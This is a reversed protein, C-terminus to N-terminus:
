KVIVVKKTILEGTNFRIQLIYMGSTLANLNLMLSTKDSGRLQESTRYVTNGNIDQLYVAVHGNRDPSSINLYAWGKNPNPYFEATAM